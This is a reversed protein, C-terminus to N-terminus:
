DCTIRHINFNYTSTVTNSGYIACCYSRHHIYVYYEGTVDTVDFMASGAGLTHSVPTAGTAWSGSKITFRKDYANYAVTPTNSSNSAVPATKSLGFYVNFTATGVNNGYDRVRCGSYSVNIYKINTFDIPKNTAVTGNWTGNGIGGSSTTNRWVLQNPEGIAAIWNNSRRVWSDFVKTNIGVSPYTLWDYIYKIVAKFKSKLHIKGFM